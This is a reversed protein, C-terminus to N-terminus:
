VEGKLYCVRAKEPVEGSDMWPRFSVLDVVWSPVSIRGTEAIVTVM